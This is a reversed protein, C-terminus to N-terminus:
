SPTAGPNSGMNRAGRQKNIILSTILLLTKGCGRRMRGVEEDTEFNLLPSMGGEEHLYRAVSGPTSQKRIVAQGPTNIGRYVM